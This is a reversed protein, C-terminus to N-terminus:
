VFLAGGGWVFWTGGAGGVLAVHIESCVNFVVELLSRHLVLM